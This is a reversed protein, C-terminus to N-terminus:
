KKSPLTPPLPLGVSCGGVFVLVLCAPFDYFAEVKPFNFPLHPPPTLGELFTTSPVDVLDM